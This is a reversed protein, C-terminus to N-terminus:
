IDFYCFRKITSLRLQGKTYLTILLILVVIFYCFIYLTINFIYTYRIYSLYLIFINYNEFFPLDFQGVVKYLNLCNLGQM